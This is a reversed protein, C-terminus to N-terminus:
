VIEHIVWGLFLTSTAGFLKGAVHVGEDGAILGRHKELNTKVTAVQTPSLCCDIILGLRRWRREGFFEDDARHSFCNVLLLIGWIGAYSISNCSIAPALFWNWLCQAVFPVYFVLAINGAGILLWKCITLYATM